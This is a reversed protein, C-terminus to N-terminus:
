PGHVGVAPPRGGPPNEGTGRGARPPVGHGPRGGLLEGLLEEADVRVATDGAAGRPPPETTLPSVAAGPPRRGAEPLRSVLRPLPRHACASGSQRYASCSRTRRCTM